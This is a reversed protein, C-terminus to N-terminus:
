NILETLISKIQKQNEEMKEILRKQVLSRVLNHDSYKTKFYTDGNLYDTLFRIGQMYTMYFPALHLIEKERKTLINATQELYGKTFHEFFEVNFDVSEINQEDEAKTNCITRLADGYDYIVSGPGVTDLDIVAIANKNRFLLNNIKTDNHTVRIPIEKNQIIEEVAKLKLAWTKYFDLLELVASKRKVSDNTISQKFQNLRFHLSHFDKIAEHFNSVDLGSCVKLFWGFGRGAEYAQKNGRVVEVTYSDQIFHMMRWYNNKSDIYLYDGTRTKVLHPIEFQDSHISQQVKLHNQIIKEPDTFVQTNIKQLIYASDNQFVVEYTSHIHGNGLPKIDQIESEYFFKNAIHLLDM